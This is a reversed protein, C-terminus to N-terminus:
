GENQKGAQVIEELRGDMKDIQKQVKKVEKASGDDIAEILRDCIDRVDDM